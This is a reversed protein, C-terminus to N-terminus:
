CAVDPGLCYLLSGFGTDAALAELLVRRVPKMADILSPWRALVDDPNRMGANCSRDEERRKERSSEPDVGRSWHRKVNRPPSRDSCANARATLDILEAVEPTVADIASLDFLTGLSAGDAVSAAASPGFVPMAASSGAVSSGPFSTGGSSLVVSSGGPRRLSEFSSEELLFPGCRCM